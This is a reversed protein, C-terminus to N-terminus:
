LKVEVLLLPCSRRIKKSRCSDDMVSATSFCNFAVFTFIPDFEVGCIDFFDTAFALTFQPNKLAALLTLLAEQVPAVIPELVVTPPPEFLPALLLLVM